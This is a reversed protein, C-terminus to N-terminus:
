CLACIFPFLNPGRITNQLTQKHKYAGTKNIENLKVKNSPFIYIMAALVGMGVVLCCNVVTIQFM